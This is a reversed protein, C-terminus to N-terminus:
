RDPKAKPIAQRLERLFARVEIDNYERLPDGEILTHSQVKRSSKDTPIQFLGRPGGITTFPEGQKLFLLYTKNNQMKKFWPTSVSAASGDRFMVKGGPLSVIFDAGETMNGKYVKEAVMTYNLTIDNEDRSLKSVNGKVTGILVLDAAKTLDKLTKFTQLDPPAETKGFNRSERAKEKLTRNDDTAPSPQQPSPRWIPGSKKRRVQAWGIGIAILIATFILGTVVARKSM